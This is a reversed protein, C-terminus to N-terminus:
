AVKRRLALERKQLMRGVLQINRAVMALAVYRRFGEIGHDLCRDLGHNELANIASEVASHNKRRCVFESANERRQQEENLKGKKPLVVNDLLDGLQLQNDPSHFGKDFSCGKLNPHLRQADKIIRVAVHSDEEKEMVRHHLILGHDSEIVCVKLGLEQTVGAKGKCIWETHPEFLSFVKENHAISEGCFCRRYIQDILTKGYDIFRQLEQVINEYVPHAGIQEIVHEINEFHVQAKDIYQQTAHLCADSHKDKERSKQVRRCAKKMVRINYASQRFGNINLKSCLDSTIQLSKRVADLLLNIDTPFHVDTEVVFSDCRGFIASDSQMGMLSHGAIVVVRNIKELVEPTFWRINDCLTQRGYRQDIDLMGHGLMQRLTIHNNAIEQLKDYDWNCTLRLCGLVFIRWLSMGERGNTVDIDAPIIEWLITKVKKWLERNTYIYQLGRLLQPIEDRNDLEIHVESIDIEGMQLQANIIKRM